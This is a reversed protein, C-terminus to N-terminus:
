ADRAGAGTPRTSRTSSSFARSKLDELERLVLQLQSVKREDAECVVVAADVAPWRPACRQPRVRGFGPCDLFTYDDGM